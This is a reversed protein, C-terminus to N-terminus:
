VQEETKQRGLHGGTMGTHVMRIFSCRYIKPLVVQLRDTVKDVSTWKRYLTGESLLLRDWEHWLLKTDASQLEIQDWSPKETLTEKLKVISTLDPDRRQAENLEKRTWNVPDQQCGDSVGETPITVAACTFEEPQHCATCSPKKLCPHRSLADANGHSTGRRHEAVFDYEELLELWSAIPESTKKLWTLAAHDTRVTFQRGLLYQRFHRTFHVIALLESRTVCYNSENRNLARVAYAVVHEQGNRKVSLVAGVADDSADTDLIFQNKSTPLVLVPPTTLAEKLRSFAPQCKDDWVFRQNKKTLNHLPSAIDSFNHVFRRYYGALGLFSRVERLNGLTPWDLILRIKEPDAAIGDKSIMHGLFCIETQMLHCKSPKLKLNAGEFRKLVMELRELHQEPTISFVIVDDVYVLCVEFNLGSLVLDMLRQFTAVANTLGFFFVKFRFIGRRTVFATKDADEPALARQHYGSRLDILSFLCSGALADFCQDTKPLPYADKRTVANLQRFDICCRWTGDSKRALVVNSSWPSSASEVVGREMFDSVQKDIEKQHAPPHRRLQQRIPRSDGTDITHTVLDTWGLDNEDKSFVHSHKWLLQRLQNRIPDSISSDIRSVMEDVVMGDESAMSDELAERSGEATVATLEGITSGKHLSVPRHSVNLVRVPLDTVRDPLMTGAV